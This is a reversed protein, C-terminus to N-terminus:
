EEFHKSCVGFRQTPALDRRNVFRIWRRNLEPNKLLFCFEPFKELIVHVKQQRKKYGTKCYAVVCANVIILDFCNNFTGLVLYVRKAYIAKFKPFLTSM